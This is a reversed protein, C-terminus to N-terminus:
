YLPPSLETQLATYGPLAHLEALEGGHDVCITPTMVGEGIKRVNFGSLTEAPPEFGMLRAVARHRQPLRAASTRYGSRQRARRRDDRRKHSHGM